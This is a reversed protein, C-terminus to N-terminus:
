HFLDQTSLRSRARWHHTGPATVDTLESGFGIAELDATVHNVKLETILGVVARDMAVFDWEYGLRWVGWKL